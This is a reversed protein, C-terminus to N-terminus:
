VLIIAQLVNVVKPLIEFTNEIGVMGIGEIGKKPEIALVMGEVLPEDFRQAIVPTEDITLGIGHGLFKVQRKGFGMFNDLFEAPLNSIITNYIESPISGPKLMAAIKNQIEVCKYHVEMAKSSIPKSYMYVMTKDTHYGDVGCGVDVFVLDGKTLKRERSGLFPAAPSIGKHGGPGNFSTPNLSNPGFATHGLVMETDFMSFRVLGQHGNKVLVSYVAISFEVESIGETLLQPVLEELVLQHIKGSQRM